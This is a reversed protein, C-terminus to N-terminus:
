EINHTIKELIENLQQMEVHSLSRTLSEIWQTHEALAQTILAEGKETLVLLYKRRDEAVVKKDILQDKFLTNIQQTMTAKTVGCFGAAAQPTLAGKKALVTLLLLRSDSLQYHELKEACVKHIADTASLLSLCLTVNEIDTQDEEILDIFTAYKQALM